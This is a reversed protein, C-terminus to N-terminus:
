PKTAAVSKVTGRRADAFPKLSGELQEGRDSLYIASLKDKSKGAFFARLRANNMVAAVTIGFQVWAGREGAVTVGGSRYTWNEKANYMKGPREVSASTGVYFLNKPHLIKLDWQCDGLHMPDEVCVLEKVQTAQGRIVRMQPMSIMLGTVAESTLKLAAKELAYGRVIGRLNFPRGTYLLRVRHAKPYLKYGVAGDVGGIPQFEQEEGSQYNINFTGSSRHWMQSALDLLEYLEPSVLTPKNSKPLRALRSVESGSNSNDAISAIREIEAAAVDAWHSGQVAIEQRTWIQIEVPGEFAKITRTYLKTGAAVAVEAKEWPRLRPGAACSTVIVCFVAGITSQRWNVRKLERVFTSHCRSAFGAISAFGGSGSSAFPIATDAFGAELASRNSRRPQATVAIGATLASECFRDHGTDLFSM